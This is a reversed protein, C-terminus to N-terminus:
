QFCYIGKIAPEGETLIVEFSLTGNEPIDEKLKLKWDQFMNIYQSYEDDCLIDNKSITVVTIDRNPQPTVDEFYILVNNGYWNKIDNIREKCEEITKSLISNEDDFMKGDDDIPYIKYIHDSKFQSFTVFQYSNNVPIGRRELDFLNVM